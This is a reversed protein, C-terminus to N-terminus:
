KFYRSLERNFQELITEVAERPLKRTSNDYIVLQKRENTQTLVRMVISHNLSLKPDSVRQYLHPEFSISEKEM